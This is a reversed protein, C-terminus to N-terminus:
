KLFKYDNREYHLKIKEPTGKKVLKENYAITRTIYVKRMQELQQWSNRLEWMKNEYTIALIGETKIGFLTNEKIKRIDKILRRIHARLNRNKAVFKGLYRLLIVQNPSNVMQRKVERWYEDQIVDIVKLISKEGIDEKIPCDPHNKVKHNILSSNGIM